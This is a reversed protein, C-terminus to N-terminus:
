QEESTVIRYGSSTHRALLSDEKLGEMVLFQTEFEEVKAVTDAHDLGYTDKLGKFEGLLISIITQQETITLM